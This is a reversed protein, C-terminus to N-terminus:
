QIGDVALGAVGILLPFAAALLIAANGRQDPVLKRILSSVAKTM